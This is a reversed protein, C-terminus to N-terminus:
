PRSPIPDPGPKVKYEKMFWERLAELFSENGPKKNLEFVTKEYVDIPDQNRSIQNKKNKLQVEEKASLPHLPKSRENSKIEENPM